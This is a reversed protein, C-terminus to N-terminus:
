FLVIFLLYVMGVVLFTKSLHSGFKVTALFADYRKKWAQSRCMSKKENYVITTFLPVMVLFNEVQVIGPSEGM